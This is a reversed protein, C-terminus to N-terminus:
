KSCDAPAWAPPQSFLSLLGLKNLTANLDKPVQTVKIKLAKGGVELRGLRITQLQRLLNHVEITQDKQRWQGDLKASLWYALFCIRVHNRVRDPRWHFVPRVRLYDKLHCFADEVELLNKYHTVVGTTPIQEVSANTGLLYLGDRIAETRILQSHRSWQLKGQEDVTYQFYKHAKLRQLARGVQSALKQPNVKKRKVTALRKLEEEAKTLRAQRRQQDRQQRWPGGAIVYRKGEKAIEMVQTRDWLEPSPDSPLAALLEELSGAGLRTVYQLKLHDLAQLNLKSSMGGDFVFVAEKIGFRRRLTGLLGQLTTTDGRNGRLVELHLPVGRADTAVALIVQPRDSRHDRSHGYRSIWAPGKGEFYVSTLDYLVLSVGQPFGQEYLQKEIPVWRGNLEDMAGYLDDEDFDERAQDLGCAAALLTGRAHDVLALKASPFLIRGFIMAKLLGANRRCVVTRFLRDLGFADWAQNLVVLGGFSWAEPLELSDSAVFSQGELSQAILQRTDPPLATINCITRSRPGQPTRFSERVLYTVYTSDGHRCKTAQVFM